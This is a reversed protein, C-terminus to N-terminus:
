NLTNRPTSKKFTKTFFDDFKDKNYSDLKSSVYLRAQGKDHPKVKDISDSTIEICQNLQKETLKFEVLLRQKYKIAALAIDRIFGFSKPDGDSAAKIDATIDYGGDANIQRFLFRTLHLYEEKQEDTLKM